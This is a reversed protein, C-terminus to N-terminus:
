GSQTYVSGSLDITNILLAAVYAIVVGTAVTQGIAELVPIDSFVMIGFAIFTSIMSVTVGHCTQIFHRDSAHERNFFLSYDLGVGILLLTALIHFLGLQVGALVQLGLGLHVALVVPLLVKLARFLSRFVVALVLLILGGGWFLRGLAAHRYDAMMASTAQRLHLYATAVEPNKGLWAWLASSDQVGYLRIVSVWRGNHYFFDNGVRGALATDMLLERSLFPLSRSQEVDHIFDEFLGAKFPLGQVAQEVSRSLIQADPLQRQRNKQTAVSPLIDTVASVASVVESQRLKGLYRSFGETRQLLQEPVDDTLIFVHNIDSVALERRLAADRQRVSEPVPSLASVNNEWAMDGYIFWGPIGAAILLIIVTIRKSSSLRVLPGTVALLTQSELERVTSALCPLVWRTTAAAAILGAIAFLALQGLGPFRTGMFAVYGLCTTVVGLRLTPWILSMSKEAGTNKELHSFLHVPYDICVGLLTVGFAITIGDVTSYVLNTVLLAALVASFLPLLVLLMFRFSHYAIWFLLLIFGGAVLALLKSVHQIRERSAVAFTAPGSLSLKYNNGALRESALATIWELAQQQRDLDFGGDRFFALLLVAQGSRSFWVGHKKEPQRAGAIDRVFGAYANAPDSSLTDKLVVGLGARLDALRNQLARRIEEPSFDYSTLNKNLLFRYRFFLSDTQKATAAQGNVVSSFYDSQELDTKLQKSISALKKADVPDKAEIHLMLMKSTAGHQIEELLFALKQDRSDNSSVPLFQSMDTSVGLNAALYIVSLLVLLLWSALFFGPKINSTTM